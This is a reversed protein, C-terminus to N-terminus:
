KTPYSSPLELIRRITFSNLIDKLFVEGGQPCIDVL